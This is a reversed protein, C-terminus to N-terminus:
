LLVYRIGLRARRPLTAERPCPQNETKSNPLTRRTQSPARRTALASHGEVNFSM